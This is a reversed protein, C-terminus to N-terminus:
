KIKACISGLEVGAYHANVYNAAEKLESESYERGVTIIRNQVERENLVLIVLVRSGDLTLFEVQRLVQQECHPVMVLSAMQTFSSLLYSTNEALLKSNQDPNLTSKIQAMVSDNIPSMTILSDVFLRYGLATPVRGASTHPSMVYGLEELDAMISRITASSLSLSCERALTKSGVPKGKQIYIEVLSKLLNQARKSLEKQIM